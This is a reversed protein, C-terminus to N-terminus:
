HLEAEPQKTHQMYKMLAPVTVAAVIGGAAALGIVGGVGAKLDQAFLSDPASAAISRGIEGGKGSM